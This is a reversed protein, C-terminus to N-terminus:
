IKELQHTAFPYSRVRNSYLVYYWRGKEGEISTILGIPQNMVALIRVLDGPKM